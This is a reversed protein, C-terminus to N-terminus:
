VAEVGLDQLPILNLDYRFLNLVFDLNGVDFRRSRVRCAIFLVAPLPLVRLVHRNHAPGKVSQLALPQHQSIREIIVRIILDFGSFFSLYFGLHVEMGPRRLVRLQDIGDIQDTRKPFVKGINFHVIRPSAAERDLVFLIQFVLILRLRDNCLM